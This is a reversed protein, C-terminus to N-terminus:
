ARGSRKLQNILRPIQVFGIWRDQRKRGVDLKTKKKFPLKSFCFGDENTM